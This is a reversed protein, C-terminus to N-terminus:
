LPATGDPASFGAESDDGGDGCPNSEDLTDPPGISSLDGVTDDGNDLWVELMPPELGNSAPSEDAKGGQKAKGPPDGILGRRLFTFALAHRTADSARWNTPKIIITKGDQLVTRESLPFALMEKAKKGIGRMIELESELLEAAVELLKDAVAEGKRRIGELYAARVEQQHAEIRADWGWKQKFRDVNQRCVLLKDAVKQCTRTEGLQYFILFAEYAKVPEKKPAVIRPPPDPQEAM